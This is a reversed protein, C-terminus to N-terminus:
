TAILENLMAQESEREVFATVQIPLNSTRSTHTPLPLAPQSQPLTPLHDVALQARAVRLFLSREEGSLQLSLAIREAMEDSPRLVDAEIKRITVEACGVRQALAAQTLDLAKRRRRM